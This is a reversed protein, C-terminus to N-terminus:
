ITATGFVDVKIPRCIPLTHIAQFTAYITRSALAAWCWIHIILLPLDSKREYKHCKDVSPRPSAAASPHPPMETDTTTVFGIFTISPLSSSACSPSLSASDAVDSEPYMLQSTEFSSGGRMTFPCMDHLYPRTNVFAIYPHARTGVFVVHPHSETNVFAVHPHHRTDVFPVHPSILVNGFDRRVVRATTGPPPAM